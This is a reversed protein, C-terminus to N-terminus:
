LMPHSLTKGAQSLTKSRWGEIKGQVKELIDSFTTSKSPGILLPLGLHRASAPTQAYPHIAQIASITAPSTNKSFLIHSKQINVTQGSWLGYKDLCSKILSAESSTATTGTSSSCPLFEEQTWSSRL